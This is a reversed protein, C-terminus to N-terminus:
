VPFTGRSYKGGGGRASVDFVCGGGVWEIERCGTSKNPGYRGRTVFDGIVGGFGSLSPSFVNGVKDALFGSPFILYKGREVLFGSNTKIIFITYLASM